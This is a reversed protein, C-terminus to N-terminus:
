MGVCSLRLYISLNLAVACSSDSWLNMIDMSDQVIRVSTVNLWFMQNSDHCGPLTFAAELSAWLGGHQNKESVGLAAIQNTQLPSFPPGKVQYKKQFFMQFCEKFAAVMWGMEM